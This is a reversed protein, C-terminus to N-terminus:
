DDRHLTWLARVKARWDRFHQRTTPPPPPTDPIALFQHSVTCPVLPNNCGPLHESATVVFWGLDNLGRPFVHLVTGDSQPPPLPLPKFTMTKLDILWAGGGITREANATIGIATDNNNLLPVWLTNGSPDRLDYWKGGRLAWSAYRYGTNTIDCYAYGTMTGSTNRSEPFIAENLCFGELFSFTGDPARVFGHRNRPAAEVRAANVYWGAISGDDAIATPFTGATGGLHVPTCTGDSTQVIGRLATNGEVPIEDTGVITGANNISTVDPSVRAGSSSHEACRIVDPVRTPPIRYTFRRTKGLLTDGNTVGEVSMYTSPRDPDPITLLRWTYSQAQVCVPLTLLVLVMFLFM